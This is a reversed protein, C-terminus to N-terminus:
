GGAGSIVWQVVLVLVGIFLATFILGAAIFPGVRGSAFDRETNARSQVGIAAALTSAVITWFSIAEPAGDEDGEKRDSDAGTSM